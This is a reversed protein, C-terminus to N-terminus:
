PTTSPRPNAEDVSPKWLGEDSVANDNDDLPGDYALEVDSGVLPSEEPKIEEWFVDVTNRYHDLMDKPKTHPVDDWGPKWVDLREFFNQFLEVATPSSSISPGLRPRGPRTEWARILWEFKIMGLSLFAVFMHTKLELDSDRESMNNEKTSHSNGSDRKPLM